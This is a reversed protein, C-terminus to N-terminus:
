VWFAIRSRFRAFLVFTIGGGVLTLGVMVLWSNLQPVGGLLPARVLDIAAFLPNLQALPKWVGLLDPSWFIPTVFFVVQIFNAVIPAVDRFRASVMGLLVSVWVGTLTLLLMAPIVYLLSWGLQVHLILLVIPVIVITHGLVLLNRCVLRYAHLSYPLRVQQIVGAMALFTNCGENIVSAVFQWLVLGVSLFPLYSAVDTHFLRAYLVGMAGIMVGTSVTLWLPGLLSGRYRLKIDQLALETWLWSKGLGEVLDSAALLLRSPPAPLEEDLAAVIQSSTASSM